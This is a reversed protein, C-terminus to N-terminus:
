KWLNSVHGSALSKRFLQALPDTLVLLFDIV